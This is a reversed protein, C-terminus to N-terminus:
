SCVIAIYAPGAPLFFLPNAQITLVVKGAKPQGNVIPFTDWGGTTLEAPICTKGPFKSAAVTLTTKSTFNIQSKTGNIVELYVVAAGSCTVQKACTKQSYPPFLKNKYKGTVDTDPKTADALIMPAKGKVSNKGLTTIVTVGNYKALKFTGGSAALEGPLCTGKFYWLGKIDCPSTAAPHFASTPALSDPGASQSPVLGHGGCAALAIAAAVAVVSTRIM